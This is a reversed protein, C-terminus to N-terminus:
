MKCKKAWLEYDFGIQIDIVLPFIEKKKKKKIQNFTSQKIITFPSDTKKNQHWSNESASGFAM